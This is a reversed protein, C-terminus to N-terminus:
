QGLWEHDSVVKYWAKPPTEKAIMGPIRIQDMEYQTFRGMDIVKGGEALQMLDFVDAGPDDRELTETM